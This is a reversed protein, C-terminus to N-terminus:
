HELESVRLVHGLTSIPAKVDRTGNTSEVWLVAFGAVYVHNARGSWGEGFVGGECKLM